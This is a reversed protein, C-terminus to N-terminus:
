QGLLLVLRELGDTARRGRFGVLSPRCFCLAQFGLPRCPEFGFYSCRAGLGLPSKHGFGRSHPRLCILRDRFYSRLRLLCRCLHDSPNARFRFFRYGLQSRLKPSLCFLRGGHGCHANPFFGVLLNFGFAQSVNRNEVGLPFSPGRIEVCFMLARLRHEGRLTLAKIGLPLDLTLAHFRITHGFPLAEVSLPLLESDLALAKFGLPM